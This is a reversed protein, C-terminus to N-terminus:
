LASLALDIVLPELFGAWNATSAFGGSTTVANAPAYNVLSSISSPTITSALDDARPFCYNVEGDSGVGNAALTYIRTYLVINAQVGNGAPGTGGSSSHTMTIRYTQNVAPVLNTNSFASWDCVICQVAGTNKYSSNSYFKLGTITAYPQGLMPPIQTGSLYDDRFEIDYDLQLYGIPAATACSLATTYVDIRGQCAEAINWDLHTTKFWPFESELAFQLSTSQYVSSLKFSRLTSLRSIINGDNTPPLTKGSPFYSLMIDGTTTNGQFKTFVLTARKFRFFRYMSAAQRMKTNAFKIPSLLCSYCLVGNVTPTYDTSPAFISGIFEKGSQRAVRPQALHSTIQHSVTVPQPRQVTRSTVRPILSQRAMM